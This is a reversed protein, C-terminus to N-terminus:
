SLFFESIGPLRIRLSGQMQKTLAYIDPGGKLHEALAKLTAGFSSKLSEKLKAISRQNVENAIIQRLKLPLESSRSFALDINGGQYTNLTDLISKSESDEPLIQSLDGFFSDSVEINLDLQLSDLLEFLTNSSSLIELMRKGVTFSGSIKQETQLQLMSCVTSVMAEFTEKQSGSPCVEVVVESNSSSILCDVLVEGSSALFSGLFECLPDQQGSQSATRQTKEWIQSLLNQVFQASEPSVCDVVIYAHLETPSKSIRKSLKQTGQSLNETGTVLDFSIRGTVPQPLDGSLIKINTSCTEM